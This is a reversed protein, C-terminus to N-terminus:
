SDQLLFFTEAKCAIAAVSVTLVAFRAALIDLASFLTSVRVLASTHGLRKTAQFSGKLFVLRRFGLESSLRPDGVAL